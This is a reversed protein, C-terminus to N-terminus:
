ISVEPNAVYRFAGRFGLMPNPEVPEWFKGGPLSRYENTKFDTARYTVPRPYFAKCFDELGATLKEVFEGQEKRKIAEKPHIGINAIMFEASLLGVGDVNLKAIQKAREPEALNVYINTATRTHAYKPQGTAKDPANVSKIISGMFIQGSGGNVTVIEGDKLLKTAEKTGV